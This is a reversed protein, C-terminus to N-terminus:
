VGIKQRVHGPVVYRFEVGKKIISGKLEIEGWRKLTILSRATTPETYGVEAAIEKKSVPRNLRDNLRAVAELVEKQGMKVQTISVFNLSYRLAKMSILGM